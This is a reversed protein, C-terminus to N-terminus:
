SEAAYAVESRTIRKILERSVLFGILACVLLQWRGQSLYYFGVIVTLTRLLQSPLFLLAPNKVSLGKRITWWLGVFFFGGLAAGALGSFILILVENM